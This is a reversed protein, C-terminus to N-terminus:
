NVKALKGKPDVQDKTMMRESGKGENAITPQGSQFVDVNNRDGLIAGGGIAKGNILLAPSTNM